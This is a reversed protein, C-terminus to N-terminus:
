IDENIAHKISKIFDNINFKLCDMHNDGFFPELLVTDTKQENVFGFGRQKKNYLPKAGRNKTNTYHTYANCFTEAVKKTNKNTFYYLAECGNGLGNSANFHLEFVLDYDKTKKATAKQRATYSPILSNHYFVDGIEKLECEFGKFLDFEYRNLYKSFAGKSIKHHGIVFAVRM